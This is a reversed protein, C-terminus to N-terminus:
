RYNRLWCPSYPCSSAGAKSMLRASLANPWTQTLMLTDFAGLIPGQKAAQKLRTCLTIVYRDLYSPDPSDPQAGMSGSRADPLVEAM